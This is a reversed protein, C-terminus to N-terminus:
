LKVHISDIWVKDTRYDTESRAGKSSNHYHCLPQLNWIAHDGGKSLPIVHDYTADTALCGPFLCHKGYFSVMEEVSPIYNGHVASAKAARRRQRSKRALDPRSRRYANKRDKLAQGGAVYRQRERERYKEPDLSRNTASKKNLYEKNENYYRRSRANNHDLNDYHRERSRANRYDKNSSHYKRSYDRKQSLVRDRNESIYVKNYEKVCPKCYTQLGDKSRNNKSFEVIPKPLNCRICHKFGVKALEEM